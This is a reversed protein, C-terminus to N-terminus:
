SRPSRLWKVVFLREDIQQSIDSLAQKLQIKKPNKHLKELLESKSAQLALIEQGYAQQDMSLAYTLQNIRLAVKKLEDCSVDAPAQLPCRLLAQKLEQPHHTYFNTDHKSCSLLMSVTILMIFLRVNKKM